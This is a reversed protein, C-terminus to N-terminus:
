AGMRERVEALTAYSEMAGPKEVCMACAQKRAILRARVPIFPLSVTLCTQLAEKVSEGRMLGAVFYGAFCDGAGTTDRVKDKVKAAELYMVENDTGSGPQLCLIGQAGLTCIIGVSSSFSEAQRLSLVDKKASEKLEDGGAQNDGGGAAASFGRLGFAALLDLLEGENVILWSLCDWPFARLEDPTLM